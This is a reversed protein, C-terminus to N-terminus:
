MYTDTCMALGFPGSYFSFVSTQGSEDDLDNEPPPAILM